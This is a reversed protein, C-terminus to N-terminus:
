RDTYKRALKAVFDLADKSLIAGYEPKMEGFVEIGAPLALSSKVSAANAQAPHCHQIQLPSCPSSTHLPLAGEKRLTQRASVEPAHSAVAPGM